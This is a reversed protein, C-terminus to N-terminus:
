YSKGEAYRARRSHRGNGRNKSKYTDLTADCNPCILRLNERKNNTSDGDVHDLIFSFPRGNWEPGISCLACVGGQEDHIYRRISQKPIAGTSEIEGTELWRSIRQARQHAHFCPLSCYIKRAPASCNPCLTAEKPPKRKPFKRNNFTAACSKSCFRRQPDGVNSFEETCTLCAVTRVLKPRPQNKAACSLNCYRPNSTDEGCYECSRM